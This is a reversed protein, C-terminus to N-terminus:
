KTVISKAEAADEKVSDAINSVESTVTQAIGTGTEVAANKVKEVMVSTGDKFTDTLSQALNSADMAVLGANNKGSETLGLYIAYGAFGLVIVMFITLIFKFM